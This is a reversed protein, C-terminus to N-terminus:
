TPANFGAILTIFSRTKMRSCPAPFLFSVAGLSSLTVFGCAPVCGCTTRVNALVCLIGEFLLCGGFMAVYM